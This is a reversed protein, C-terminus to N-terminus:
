ARGRTAPWLDVFAQVCVHAQACALFMHTLSRPIAPARFFLDGELFFLSSAASLLAPPPRPSSACVRSRAPCLLHTLDITTALVFMELARASARALAALLELAGM